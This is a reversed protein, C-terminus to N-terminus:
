NNNKKLYNFSDSGQNFLLDLISVGHEFPENLQKYEPYGSYDMFEVSINNKEFLSLDMYAKAAPGSIYHNCNLQKCIQILKENKDGSFILDKSRVIKTTIGLYQNITKIFTLNIDTLNNSIPENYLPLLLQEIEKFHSAKNYNQVLTKWHKKYWLQQSIKAENIKQGFNLKVPITLWQLGQKTKILNRNRWDNKTYQMEDYLVFVDARNIADFYGKWPIYNSQLILISNKM